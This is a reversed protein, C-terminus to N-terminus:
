EHIKLLNILNMKAAESDIIQAKAILDEKEKQSFKEIHGALTNPSILEYARNQNVGRSRQPTFVDHIKSRLSANNRCIEAFNEDLQKALDFDSSFKVQSTYAFILANEIIKRKKIEKEKKRIDLGHKRRSNAETASVGSNIIEIRSKGMYIKQSKDEIKAILQGLLLWDRGPFKGHNNKIVRLQQKAKEVDELIEDGFKSNLFKEIDNLEDGDNMIHRNLNHSSIFQKWLTHDDWASPKKNDCNDCNDSPLWLTDFISDYDCCVLEAKWSSGGEISFGLKYDLVVFHGNFNTVIKCPFFLDNKAKSNTHNELEKELIEVISDWFAVGENRIATKLQRITIKENKSIENEM